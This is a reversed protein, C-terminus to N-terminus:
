RSNEIADEGSPNEPWADFNAYIYDLLDEFNGEPGAFETIGKAVRDYRHHAAQKTLALQRGIESWSAGEHRAQAILVARELELGMEIWRLAELALMPTRPQDHFKLYDDGFLYNVAM